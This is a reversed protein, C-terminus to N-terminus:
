KKLKEKYFASYSEFEQKDKTTPRNVIIERISLVFGIVMCEISGTYQGIGVGYSLPIVYFTQDFINPDSIVIVGYGLVVLFGLITGLLIGTTTAINVGYFRRTALAALWGLVGGLALAFLISMLITQYSYVIERFFLGLIAGFIAGALMGFTSGIFYGSVSAILIQSIKKFLSM